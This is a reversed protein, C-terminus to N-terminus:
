GAACRSAWVQDRSLGPLPPPLLQAAAKRAVDPKCEAGLCCRLLVSPAGLSCKRLALRAARGAGFASAAALAALL